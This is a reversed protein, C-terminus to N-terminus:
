RGAPSRSHPEAWREEGPRRVIVKERNRDSKRTVSVRFAAVSRLRSSRRERWRGSIRHGNVATTMSRSSQLVTIIAPGLFRLYIMTGISVVACLSKILCDSLFFFFIPSKESYVVSSTNSGHVVTEYRPLQLLRFFFNIM